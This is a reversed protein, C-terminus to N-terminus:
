TIIWTCKRPLLSVYHLDFAPTRRDQPFAQTQLIELSSSQKKIQKNIKFSCVFMFRLLLSQHSDKLKHKGRRNLESIIHPDSLAHSTQACYRKAYLVSTAKTKNQSQQKNKKRGSLYCYCLSGM